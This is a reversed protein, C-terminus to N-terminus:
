GGVMDAARRAIPCSETILEHERMIRRLKCLEAQSLPPQKVTRTVSPNFMVVNDTKSDM